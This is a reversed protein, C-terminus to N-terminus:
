RSTVPDDGLSLFQELCRRVQACASDIDAFSAIEDFTAIEDFGATVDASWRLQVRIASPPGELWARAVMLAVRPPPPSM